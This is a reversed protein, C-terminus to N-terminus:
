LNIRWLKKRLKYVCRHLKGIFKYCLPLIKELKKLYNEKGNRRKTPIVNICM